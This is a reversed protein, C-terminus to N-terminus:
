AERRKRLNVAIIGGLLGAVACVALDALFDIGFSIKSSIAGYLVNSLVAFFCGNLLGRIWGNEACRFSLAEGVILAVVKIVVNLILVVGVDFTFIKAFMACILVLVLSLIISSVLALAGDKLYFKLKTM